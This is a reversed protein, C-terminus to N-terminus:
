CDASKPWVCIKKLHWSQPKSNMSIVHRLARSIGSANPIAEGNPGSLLDGARFTALSGDVADARRFDIARDRVVHIALDPLRSFSKHVRIGARRLIILGALKTV